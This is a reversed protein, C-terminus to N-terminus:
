YEEAGVASDSGICIPIGAPAIFLLQLFLLIAVSCLLSSCEVQISVSCSHLLVAATYFCKLLTAVLAASFRFIAPFQGFTAAM